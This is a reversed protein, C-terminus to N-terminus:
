RTLAQAEAFTLGLATLSHPVMVELHGPVLNPVHRIRNVPTWFLETLEKGDPELKPRPGSFLAVMSLLHVEVDGKMDIFRGGPRFEVRQIFEPTAGTEEKLETAAANKIADFQDYDIRGTPDFLVDVFGGVYTARGSKRRGHLVETHGNVVSERSVVAVSVAYHRKANTYDVGPGGQYLPLPPNHSAVYRRVEKTVAM